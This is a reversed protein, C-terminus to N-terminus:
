HANSEVIPAQGASPEVHLHAGQSGYEGEPFLRRFPLGSRRLEAAAEFPTMGAVVIDYAGPADYSGLSHRSLHGVPVTLAGEARLENEREPSRYGGTERWRGPGFITNMMMTFRATSVPGAGIPFSLSGSTVQGPGQDSGDGKSALDATAARGFWYDAKTPDKEVGDGDRYMVALSFEAGAEGKAAAQQYLAAAAAMDKPAGQGNAYMVGLLFAAQADGGDAAKKYVAVATTYDGRVVAAAGDDIPSAYAPAVAGLAAAACLAVAWCITRL